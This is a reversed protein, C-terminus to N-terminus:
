SYKVSLHGVRTLADKEDKFSRPFRELVRAAITQLATEGNMQLLIFKDIEGDENTQPVYDAAQKRLKPLSFIEGYFTSQNFSAKVSELRGKELVKTTWRWLYGDSKLDGQIKITINDGTKVEAPYEFPFFPSGYIVEKEAPSSTFHADGGLTADFWINFGHATGDRKVVFSMEAEVNPNEITTYDVTLWNVPETLFTEPTNRNHYWGNVLFRRTSELNIGYRTKSPKEIYKEYSAPTEVVSAWLVDKQPIMAGGPKLLRRRADALSPIIQEYLPIMGRLDSIIVDAREPLEVKTSLDQIFEIRDAYGNRDALERGVQIADNYEIAYVKRAGFQCALM